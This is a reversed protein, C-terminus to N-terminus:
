GAGIPNAPRVLSAEALDLDRRAFWLENNDDCTVLDFCGQPRKVLHQAVLRQQRAAVVDRVDSTYTVLYPSELTGDGTALLGTLCADFQFQELEVGEVDNLAAAIRASWLHFSPSLLWTASIEDQLHAAKDYQASEYLAILRSLSELEVRGHALIGQQLQTYLDRCPQRLFEEYTSEMRRRECVPSTWARVKISGHLYGLEKQYYRRRYM